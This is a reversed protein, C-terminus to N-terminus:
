VLLANIEATTIPSFTMKTTNITKGSKSIGNLVTFSTAGFAPESATTTGLANVYGDLSQHATLFTGYTVAIEGNNTGKKISTVANQGAAATGTITNFKDGTYSAKTAILYANIKQDLESANLKTDIKGTIGSVIGQIDSKTYYDRLDTDAKYEGLKEWKTADYTKTLDGTYVYEAYVNGSQTSGDKKLYFKSKSINATSTPLNESDGLIVFLTTDLNALQEIPVRGNADLTAIGNKAGIKNELTTTRNGVVTLGNDHATLHKDHKAINEEATDVRATLSNFATKYVYPTLDINAIGNSLVSDNNVKVDKVPVSVDGGYILKTWGAASKRNGWNTLKYDGDGSVHWIQGVADEGTTVGDGYQSSLICESLSYLDALSAVRRFGSIEKADVIGWSKPNASVVKAMRYLRGAM